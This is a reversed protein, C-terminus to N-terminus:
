PHLTWHSFGSANVGISNSVGWTHFSREALKVSSYDCIGLAKVGTPNNLGWTHFVRYDIKAFSTKLGYFIVRTLPSAM